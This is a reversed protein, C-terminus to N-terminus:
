GLGSQPTPSGLPLLPATAWEVPVLSFHVNVNVVVVFVKLSLKLKVKSKFKLFHQSLDMM